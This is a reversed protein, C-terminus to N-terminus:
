LSIAPSEGRDHSFNVPCVNSYWQPLTLKKEGDKLTIKDRKIDDKDKWPVQMLSIATGHFSYRSMLSSPNHDLNKVAGVTFM